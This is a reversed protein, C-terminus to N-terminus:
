FIPSSRTEPCGGFLEHQFGDACGASSKENLKPREHLRITKVRQFGASEALFSLLMPPIPKVHGPDYNFNVSNVYLNEPNPTDLILMGGPMLVRFAELVLERLKDFHIHEAIHFGSVVQLSDSRCDGLADLVDKKEVKFGLEGCEAMAYEDTDVGSARFGMESLIELWEGRGCGLDIASPGEGKEPDLYPEVFPRYFDLLGKVCSRDGQFRLRFERSFKDGM